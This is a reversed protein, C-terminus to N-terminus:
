RREGRMAPRGRCGMDWPGRRGIPGTDTMAVSSVCPRFTQIYIMEYDSASRLVGEGRPAGAHAAAAVDRGGAAAKDVGSGEVLTQTGKM